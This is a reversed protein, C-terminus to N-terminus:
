FIPKRAQSQTPSSLFNALFEQVLVFMERATKLEKDTMNDKFIDHAMEPIVQVNCQEGVPSSKLEQRLKEIVMPKTYPEKDGYIALTPTKCHQFQGMFAQPFGAFSVAAELDTRKLAAEYALTGGMGVGIVACKRNTRNHTELVTLTADLGLYRTDKTKELLAMAEKPNSATQEHFLDPAIVYYGRMAFHNAMLRVWNSMGWWDHIIAIGSLNNGMRPHAWYAPYRTTEGIIAIHGSDIPHEVQQTLMREM